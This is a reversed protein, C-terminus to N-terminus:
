GGGGGGARFGTRTRQGHAATARRKEGAGCHLMSAVRAQTPAPPRQDSPAQRAARVVLDLVVPVRVEALLEDRPADVRARVRRQGCCSCAQV